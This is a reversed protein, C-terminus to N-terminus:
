AANFNFHDLFETEDLVEIYTNYYSVNNLYKKTMSVYYDDNREFYYCTSGQPFIVKNFQKGDGLYKICTQTYDKKCMCEKAM